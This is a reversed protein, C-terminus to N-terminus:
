VAPKNSLTVNAVAVRGYNRFSFPASSPITYSSVESSKQMVQLYFMEATASIETPVKCLMAGGGRKFQFEAM